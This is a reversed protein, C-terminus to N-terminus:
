LVIQADMHRRIAKSADCYGRWDKNIKEATWTGIHTRSRLMQAHDSEEVSKLLKAESESATPRLMERIAAALQRRKLSSQSLKWRATACADSNSGTARTMAQMAAIGAHLERHAEKLQKLMAGANARGNQATDSVCQVASQM